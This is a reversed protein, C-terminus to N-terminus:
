ARSQKEGIRSNHAWAELKGAFYTHAGTVELNHVIQPNPDFEIGLVCLESLDARRIADGPGVVDANVWVEGDVIM